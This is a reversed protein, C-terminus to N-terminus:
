ADDRRLHAARQSLHHRENDRCPGGVAEAGDPLIFFLLLLSVGQRGTQRTGGHLSGGSPQHRHIGARRDKEAQLRDTHVGGAAPGREMDDEPHRKQATGHPLLLPFRQPAGPVQM